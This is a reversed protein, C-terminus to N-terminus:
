RNYLAAIKKAKEAILIRMEEPELVTVDEGYSLIFSHVWQDNPFSVKVIQSGDELITIQEANFYDEVKYRMHPSFHLVLHVLKVNNHNEVDEPEQPPIRRTFTQDVLTCDSIRSLKFMRFDHRKLCYAFLYWALGKFYLTMPEVTRSSTESNANRYAFHLLLNKLVAHHITQLWEKQRTRYGWPMIDIVLKENKKNAAERTEEPMLNAIKEVANDLERFDLTGSLGRLASVISIMDKLTLLQKDLKYNEMIGFGGNNGPFSIIPIGAMNIAEIDRYVTRISIEFKDALERASVREKNLLLVVIALMRDIRM